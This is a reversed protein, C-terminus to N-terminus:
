EPKDETPNFSDRNIRNQNLRLQLSAITQMQRRITQRLMRIEEDSTNTTNSHRLEENERELEANEDILETNERSIRKHMIIFDLLEVTDHFLDVYEINNYFKRYLAEYDEIDWELHKEDDVIEELLNWDIQESYLFGKNITNNSNSATNTSTTM